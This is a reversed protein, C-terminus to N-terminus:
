VSKPVIYQDVVLPWILKFAETFQEGYLAIWQTLADPMLWRGNDIETAQLVLPQDSIAGYVTTFELGTAPKPYLRGLQQLAVADITIGLEENLERIACELYSEGSDVHGAASTDWLGAGSDKALSRLQVFVEGQTNFLVIHSSRHILGKAHVRARTDRGIVNDQADVIDLWEEGL